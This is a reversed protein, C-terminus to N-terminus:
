QKQVVDDIGETQLPKEEAPRLSSIVKCPNGAAIVNAPINSTVVSNAGIVSNDGISVGKLVIASYGLFVNNGITVPKSKPEGTHRTVPNVPHWDFDTILVNAGVLVKNGIKISQRAGIVVGSFGCNDGIIIEAKAHHTAIISRRNLGILNSIPSTRIGINKGISITSGPALYVIPIGVFTSGKQMSVGKLRFVARCYFTSVLSIIRLRLYYAYHFFM